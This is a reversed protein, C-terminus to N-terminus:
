KYENYLIFRKYLIRGLNSSLRCVVDVLVSKGLIGSPVLLVLVM